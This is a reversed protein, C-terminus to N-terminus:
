RVVTTETWTTLNKKKMESVCYSIYRAFLVLIPCNHPLSELSCSLFWEELKAHDDIAVVM